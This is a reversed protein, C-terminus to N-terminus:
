QKDKKKEKRHSAVPGAADGITDIKRKDDTEYRGDILDQKKNQDSM